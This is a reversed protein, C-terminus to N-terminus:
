HRTRWRKAAMPDTRGPFHRLMSWSRYARIAILGQLARWKGRLGGPIRPSRLIRPLAWIPSVLLVVAKAFWLLRNTGVADHSIMRDWKRALEGFSGRAPHYAVMDPSWTFTYGLATARQGWDRDEALAIGAFPGVEAFVVRRMALNGTGSFGQDRIYHEMRYAFEAEYAEWITPHQPDDLLIRVDGGLIEANSLGLDIRDLWDPAPRCDADIFVLRDGKSLAAGMNRAPGPGPEPQLELRVGPFPAVEESPLRESGNDVVIIEAGLRRAQPALDQLLVALAAHQNFHPIIISLM